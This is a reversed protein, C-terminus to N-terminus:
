NRRLTIGCGQALAALVYPWVMPLHCGYGRDRDSLQAVPETLVGPREKEVDPLGPFVDGTMNGARLQDRETLQFLSNGLDRVIPRDERDAMATLAAQGRGTVEQGESISIHGVDVPSSRGPDFAPVGDLGSRRRCVATLVPHKVKTTLGGVM